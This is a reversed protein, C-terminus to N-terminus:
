VDVPRVLRVTVRLAETARRLTTDLDTCPFFCEERDDWFEIAALEVERGLRGWAYEKACEAAEKVRRHRLVLIVETGGPWCVAVSKYGETNVSGWESEPGLPAEPADCLTLDRETHKVWQSWTTKELELSNMDEAPAGLFTFGATADMPFRAPDFSALLERVLKPIHRLETHGPRPILIDLVLPEFLCQCRSTTESPHITIPTWNMDLIPDGYVDFTSFIWPATRTMVTWCAAKVEIGNCMIRHIRIELRRSLVRVAAEFDPLEDIPVPTEDVWLGKIIVAFTLSVFSPFKAAFLRDFVAKEEVRQAAVKDTRNGVVNARSSAEEQSYESYSALQTSDAYATLQARQPSGSDRTIPLLAPPM